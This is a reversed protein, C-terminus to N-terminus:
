RWESGRSAARAGEFSVMWTGGTEEEVAFAVSSRLRPGSWRLGGTARGDSLGFMLELPPAARASVGFHGRAVGGSSSRALSVTITNEWFYSAGWRTSRGWRLPDAADADRDFVNGAAYGFSFAPLPRIVIGVDASVPAWSGNLIEPAAGSSRGAVAAAGIAIYSGQTGAVLTRSVAAALFDEGFNEGDLRYWGLGCRAFGANGGIALRMERAFPMECPEAYDAYAELGEISALGAPNVFLAYAGEAFSVAAGGVASSRATRDTREFRAIAPSGYAFPLAAIALFLVAGFPDRPGRVARGRRARTGLGRRAPRGAGDSCGDSIRRM